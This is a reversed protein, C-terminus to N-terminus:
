AFINMHAQKEKTGVSTKTFRAPPERFLRSSPPSVSGRKQANKRPSPCRFGQQPPKTFRRPLDIPGQRARHVTYAGAEWEKWEGESGHMGAERRMQPFFAPIYSSALLGPQGSALANMKTAASSKM